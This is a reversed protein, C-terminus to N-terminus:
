LMAELYPQILRRSRLEGALHLFKSVDIKQANIAERLAEVAIEHGVIRRLRFCDIITKELSYVKVRVGEFIHEERGLDFNAGTMTVVRIRTQRTSPIRKGRSIALWVDWPMQTGVEHISLASLLCIVGDPVAMAVEVLSHRETAEFDPHRYLGRGIKELRGLKALKNLNEAALGLARVDAPTVVGQRKALELIDEWTHRM